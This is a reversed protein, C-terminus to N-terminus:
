QPCRRRASEVRSVVLELEFASIGRNVPAGTSQPAAHVVAQTTEVRDYRMHRENREVRMSPVSAASMFVSATSGPVGNANDNIRMENGDNLFEDNTGLGNVIHMDNLDGVNRVRLESNVYDNMEYILVRVGDEDEFADEYEAQQHVKASRLPGRNLGRMAESSPSTSHAGTQVAAPLAPAKIDDSAPAASAGSQQPDALEILMQDEIRAEDIAYWPVRDALSPVQLMLKRLLHERLEAESGAISCSRTQVEVVVDAMESRTINFKLVRYDSHKGIIDRMRADHTAAAAARAAQRM